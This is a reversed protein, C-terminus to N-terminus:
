RVEPLKDPNRLMHITQLKGNKAHLLVVTEVADGRRFVIAIQGNMMALEAALSDKEKRALGLLFAAVREKTEVPQIAALVKGGGDSILTVDEALMSLVTETEGQALAALFKQIWEKGVSGSGILEEETIGMKGRARSMLKRCNVESKGLLEAIAPYDFSMAERLVFVAREGPTLRELLALMAYSLLDGRVVAEFSDSAVEYASGPLPEPLWPGVYHERRKRASKLLDLCHNTVARCLYAKPEQLKEPKVSRLKIFVDQVADEADSRSGTMQYALHFLLHKYREYLEVM